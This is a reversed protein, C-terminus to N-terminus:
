LRIGDDVGHSLLGPHGDRGDCHDRGDCARAQNPSPRHSPRDARGDGIDARIDAEQSPHSPRSSTDGTEDGDAARHDLRVLRRSGSGPERYTAVDIGVRRLYPALRRIAASMARPSEPWGRPARGTPATAVLLDAATGIWPLSLRRIAVALPDGDLSTEVATARMARYADLIQGQPWALGPEAATVWRAWDAMRPLRDIAIDRERALASAVADLLAGLIGPATAAFRAWLVDETVRASEAVVPLTIAIARDLLDGRVVIDTVSTLIAPRVAELIIEEGDTYLERKTMAGGTSLRCLADSLWPEIHSLNDLAVVRSRAAAIMVDDITRPEARLEAISPDVLRRIVRAATSKGAGQEGALALLPYPGTPRLAGVLWGVVLRYDDDTAIHVLDRLADISGDRTPVVLPRAGRARLFRVRPEPEIAWGAPSIEIARWAPDGLDIYV